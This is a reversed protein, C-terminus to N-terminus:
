KNAEFVRVQLIRAEKAGWTSLAEVRVGALLLPEFTHERWHLRNAQVEGLLQETGDPKLGILRYHKLCRLPGPLVPFREALDTDFALQVKDIKVPKYFALSVWQPLAEGPASRWGHYAFAEPRHWENVVQEPAFPGKLPTAPVTVLGCRAKLYFFGEGERRAVQWGPPAYEVLPLTVAPAPKLLLACPGWAKSLDGSFTVWQRGSTNTTAEVDAIKRLPQLLNLHLVTVLEGVLKLNEPAEVLLELQELRGYQVDFALAVESELALSTPLGPRALTAYTAAECEAAARSYEDFDWTSSASVEALPAVDRLDHLPIDPLHAGTALLTQQIPELQQQCVKRNSLGEKAAFAAATGVAQGMVACTAMVRPSGLAVHTVSINRGAMFLNQVNRSYLARLPIPYPRVLRGNAAPDPSLIGKPPHLDLSWGGYAVTDKKSGPAEIYRQTLLEDGILRRSERKGARWAVECLKWYSAEDKAQSRHKILDWVGYLFRLLEDRIYEADKITDFEGGFEIWWHGVEAPVADRFLGLEDESEFYHAWEPPTYEVQVERREARWLLSNGMTCKDAKEPAMSEGFESRAERGRRFEAGALAGLTADGTCDVFQAAKVVALEGTRPKRAALSRITGAECDASEVWFGRLLQVGAEELARQLGSHWDGAELAQYWLPELLGTERLSDLFPGIAAGEVPVSVERSANGGLTEPGTVLVTRAGQAAAALAALCGALGGGAVCVDAQLQETPQSAYAGSQLRYARLAEWGSEPTFDTESSFLFAAVRSYDGSASLELQVQQALEFEGVPQWHWEAVKDVGLNEGASQGQLSLTFAGPSFEPLWDRTYVWVKYRGEHPLEVKGKAGRALGGRQAALLYAGGQVEFFQDDVTWDGLDALQVAEVYRTNTSDFTM